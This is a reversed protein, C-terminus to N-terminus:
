RERREMTQKGQINERPIAAIVGVNAIEHRMTEPDMVRPTRFSNNM